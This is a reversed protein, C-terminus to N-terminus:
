GCILEDLKSQFPTLLEAASDSVAVMDCHRIGGYGEIYVAPEVNFVMGAQLVDNSKPHIQPRANPSIASFGVGHGTSHKFEKAFGHKRLTERAAADVDRARVGPRIAELASDRAAFIGRYIDLARESPSGMCYTRTIDTWFGNKYSNSHALVLDGTSIKKDRSHAFAGYAEASNKGSMCFTYGDGRQAQDNTALNGFHARFIAAAETEKMGDTLRRFGERYAAGAIECAERIKAIEASTKVMALEAILEDAASLLVEPMARQLAEPLSDGYFNMAAYSSPISDPGTGVGIRKAGQLFQAAQQMLGAVVERTSRLETLTAPKFLQVDDAWGHRTFGLEDEPAFLIIRGERTAIAISLSVVPWYGSLLLVHSSLSCILADLQAKVLADRIRGIREQDKM